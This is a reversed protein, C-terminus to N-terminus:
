EKLRPADGEVNLPMLLGVTEKGAKFSLPGHGRKGPEALHLTADPYRSRITDFLNADVVVVKGSPSQVMYKPVDDDPTQRAGVVKAPQKEVKKPFVKKITDGFRKASAADHGGRSEVAASIAGAESEPTKFLFKGDTVWGTEKAIGLWDHRAGTKKPDGLYKVLGKTRLPRAKVSSVDPVFKQAETHQAAHATERERQEKIESRYRNDFSDAASEYRAAKESMGKAAESGPNVASLDAAITRLHAAESRTREVHKQDEKYRRELQEATYNVGYGGVRGELVARIEYPPEGHKLSHAAEAEMNKVVHALKPVGEHGYGTADSIARQWRHFLDSPRQDRGAAHMAETLGDMTAYIRAATKDVGADKASRSEKQGRDFAEEATQNPHTARKEAGLVQRHAQDLMADATGEWRKTQYDGGRQANWKQVMDAADAKATALAEDPSQGKNLAGLYSSLAEGQVFEDFSGGGAEVEGAKPQLSRHKELHWDAKERVARMAAHVSEQKDGLGGLWGTSPKEEVLASKPMVGADKLIKGHDFALPMGALDKVPVWKAASADDQGEPKDMAKAQEPTLHVKFASSKTWAERNDRPDRKEQYKGAGGGEYVGVEKLSGKLSGAKLGTEEELERLAAEEATEKGETWAFGAPPLNGKPYPKPVNPLDKVQERTLGTAKLAGDSWESDHFGGPMAWKGGEVTGERRQILLVEEEGTKPNARTIVNDVTPNPGPRWLPQDPSGWHPDPKFDAQPKASEPTANQSAKPKPTVGGARDKAAKLKEKGEKTTAVDGPIWMGGRFFKGRITVGGKPAHVRAYDVAYQVVEWLEGNWDVGWGSGSLQSDAAETEARPVDRGSAEIANWSDAYRQAVWAFPDDPDFGEVGILQIVTKEGERPSFVVESLALPTGALRDDGAYKKGRGPKVYALTVHAHFDPFDDKHELLEALHDHLAVLDESDVDIKVVDHEAEPGDAEFLSVPGLMAEVPALGQLAEIVPASDDAEIGYLITVHAEHERGDPALDETAIEAAMERVQAAVDEPLMFQTSAFRRPRREFADCVMQPNVDSLLPFREDDAAMLEEFLACTGLRGPLEEEKAYFKCKGCRGPQDGRERYRFDARSVAGEAPLGEAVAEAHLRELGLHHLLGVDDVEGAPEPTEDFPLQPHDGILFREIDEDDAAYHRRAEGGQARHLAAALQADSYASADAGIFSRFAQVTSM